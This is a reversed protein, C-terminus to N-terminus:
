IFDHASIVILRDSKGTLGHSFQLMQNWSGRGQLCVHPYLSLIARRVGWREREGAPMWYSSEPLSASICREDARRQYFLGSNILLAPCRKKCSVSCPRVSTPIEGGQTGATCQKARRM